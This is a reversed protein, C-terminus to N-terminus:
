SVISSLTLDNMVIQSKVELEIFFHIKLTRIRRCVKWFLQCYDYVTIFGKQQQACEKKCLLNNVSHFVNEILWLTLLYSAGDFIKSLNRGLARM